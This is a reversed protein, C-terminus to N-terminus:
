CVAPAQEAAGRESDVICSAHCNSTFLILSKAAVIEDNAFPLKCNVCVNMSMMDAM